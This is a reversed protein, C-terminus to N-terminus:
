KHSVMKNKDTVIHLSFTNILLFAGTRLLILCLKLDAAHVLDINLRPRGSLVYLSFYVHIIFPATSHCTAFPAQVPSASSHCTGHPILAM